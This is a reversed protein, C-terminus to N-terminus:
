KLKSKRIKDDHIYWLGHSAPFYMQVSSMLVTGDEEIPVKLLTSGVFITEASDSSFNVLYTHPLMNIHLM